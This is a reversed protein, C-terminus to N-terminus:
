SDEEAGAPIGNPWMNLEKPHLQTVRDAIAYAFNAVDACEKVVADADINWAALEGMLEEAEACLKTLLQQLTDTSWGGKHENENLKQIMVNKFQDLNM